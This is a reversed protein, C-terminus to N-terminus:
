KTTLTKAEVCTDNLKKLVEPKLIAEAVEKYNRKITVVGKTAINDGVYVHYMECPKDGKKEWKAEENLKRMKNIGELARKELEEDTM